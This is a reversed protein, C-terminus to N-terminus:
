FSTCRPSHKLHKVNCIDLYMLFCCDFQYDERAVSGFRVECHSKISDKDDRLRQAHGAPFDAYMLNWNRSRHNTFHEGATRLCEIAMYKLHCILGSHSTADNAMASCAHDNM